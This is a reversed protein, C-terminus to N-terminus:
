RPSGPRDRDKQSVEVADGVQARRSALSRGMESPRRAIAVLMPLITGIM